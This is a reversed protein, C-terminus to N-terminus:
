GCGRGARARCHGAGQRLACGGRVGDGVGACCSLCLLLTCCFRATHTASGSVYLTIYLACLVTYSRCSAGSRYREWSACHLLATLQQQQQQQQQQSVEQREDSSRIAAADLLGELLVVSTVGGLLAAAVQQAAALTDNAAGALLVLLLLLLLRHSIAPVHGCDGNIGLLRQLVSDAGTHTHQCGVCM